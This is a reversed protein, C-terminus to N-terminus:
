LKNVWTDEDRLRGRSWQGLLLYINRDISKAIVLSTVVHRLISVVWLLIMSGTPAPTRDLPGLARLQEDTFSGLSRLRTDSPVSPSIVAIVQRYNICRDVLTCM